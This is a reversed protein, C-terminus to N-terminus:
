GEAIIFRLLKSSEHLKSLLHESVNSLLTFQDYLEGKKLSSIQVIREKLITADGPKVLLTDNALGSLSEPIGGVKSAIPITQLLISEIVSYPLPEEWISPFLLAWVQRHLNLVETYPIRGTFHIVNGYIRNIRSLTRQTRSSYKNTFIFKAKEGERLALEIAQVLVYFGKLYSEGGTYLFVPTEVPEKKIKPIPPPPNYIVILNDRLQPLAKALLEAHRKSVAIVADAESVWKAILPTRLIEGVNLLLSKMNRREFYKVRFSEIIQRSIASNDAQSALIVSTPSV